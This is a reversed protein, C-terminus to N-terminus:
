KLLQMNCSKPINNVNKIYREIIEDLNNLIIDKGSINHDLLLQKLHLNNLNKQYHQALPAYSLHWPEAAVGGQYAAYPFYFGFQNAHKNLWVSLKHLPGQESYEWPELQLQYNKALLNSAYIDIDCGWHHRSAGPLASFLLIAHMLAEDSLTSKDIVKGHSDKITSQGSFKNNWIHLQRDFSRYGSAIKLDIDVYKAATELAKFALLMEKHIAVKENLFHLHQDTKGLMEAVISAKNKNISM